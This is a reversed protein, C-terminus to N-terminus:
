GEAKWRKYLSNGIGLSDLVKGVVFDVLDDLTQPRQYFAPMAPVIRAGLRSLKLMNELHIESLPTERPVLVLPRREKIMVDACRELLTGSSGCAIRSLTGMTCPCIVMADPASSGSAVPAFFDDEAFFDLRGAKPRFHATLARQVDGSGGQLDLGTEEKIVQFGTASVLVTLHVGACLLERGLKLGYLAGSAGTMALLISTRKM